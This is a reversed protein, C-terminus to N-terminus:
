SDRKPSRPPQLASFLGNPDWVVVLGGGVVRRTGTDPCTAWDPAAIGFEVELGSTYVVRLSTVRGWDERAASRVTGFRAPWDRERLLAEAQACLLVLDVDSDPRAEGRAHSGVLAVAAIRPESRAWERLDRLLQQIM